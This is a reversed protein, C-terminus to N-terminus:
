SPTPPARSQSPSRSYHGSRVVPQVGSSGNERRSAKSEFLLEEETESETLMLSNQQIGRKLSQPLMEQGEDLHKRDLIAYRM